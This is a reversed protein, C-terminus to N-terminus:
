AKVSHARFLQGWREGTAASQFAPGIGQGPLVISSDKTALTYTFMGLTFIPSNIGVMQRGCPPLSKSSILNRVVELM